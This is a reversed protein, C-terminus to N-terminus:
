QQEKELWEKIHQQCYEYNDRHSDAHCTTKACFHCRTPIDMKRALLMALAMPSRTIRKFNTTPTNAEKRFPCGACDGTGNKRNDEVRKQEALRCREDIIHKLLNQETHTCHYYCGARDAKYFSTDDANEVHECTWLDANYFHCNGCTRTIGKDAEGGREALYREIIYNYNNDDSM